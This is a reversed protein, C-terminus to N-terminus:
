SPHRGRKSRLRRRRSTRTRRRPDERRSQNRQRPRRSGRRTLRGSPPMTSKKRRTGGIERITTETLKLGEKAERLAAQPSLSPAVPGPSPGGLTMQRILERQRLAVYRLLASRSVNDLDLCEIGQV